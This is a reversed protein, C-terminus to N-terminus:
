LIEESFVQDLLKIRRVGIIKILSSNYQDANFLKDPCKESYWFLVERLKQKGIRRAKYDNTVRKIEEALTVVTPPYLMFEYNM